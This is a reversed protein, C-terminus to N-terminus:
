AADLVRAIADIIRFQPRHNVRTLMRKITDPSVSAEDAFDALEGPDIAAPNDTGFHALLRDRLPHYDGTEPTLRPRMLRDVVEAVPLDLEDALTAAAASFADQSGNPKAAKLADVYRKHRERTPGRPESKEAEWKWVTHTSVGLLFAFREQSM